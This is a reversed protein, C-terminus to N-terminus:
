ESVPDAAMALVVDPTRSFSDSEIIDFVTDLKTTNLLHRVRESPNLFRVNGGYNRISTYVTVLEGLGCSDIYSVDKMELIFQRKGTKLFHSVTKRLTEDLITLRGCMRLVLVGEDEQTRIMCM